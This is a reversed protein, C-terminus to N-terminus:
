CLLVVTPPDDAVDQSLHLLVHVGGAAVADVVAVIDAPWPVADQAGQGRRGHQVFVVLSSQEIGHRGAEAPLRLIQAVHRAEGDQLVIAPQSQGSLQHLLEVMVHPVAVLGVGDPEVDAHGIPGGSPQITVGHFVVDVIDDLM